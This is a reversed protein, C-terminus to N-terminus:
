NAIVTTESKYIVEKNTEPEIKPYKRKARSTLIQKSSGTFVIYPKGNKQYETRIEEVKLWQAWGFSIEMGVTIDKAQIKM